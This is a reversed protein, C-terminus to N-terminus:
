AAEGPLQTAARPGRQARACVPAQPPLHLARDGRRHLPSTQARPLGRRRVTRRRLSRGVPLSQEALGGRRSGGCLRPAAAPLIHRHGGGTTADLQPSHSLTLSISRLRRSFALHHRTSVLNPYQSIHASAAAHGGVRRCLLFLERGICYYQLSHSRVGEIFGGWVSVQPVYFAATPRLCRLWAYAKASRPTTAPPPAPARAIVEPLTTHEDEDPGLEFRSSPLLPQDDYYSAPAPARRRGQPRSSPGPEADDSSSASPGADDEFRRPRAGRQSRRSRATLQTELEEERRRARAAQSPSPPPANYEYHFPSRPGISVRVYGETM